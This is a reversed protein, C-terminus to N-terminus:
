KCKEPHEVGSFHTNGDPNLGTPCFGQGEDCPAHCQGKEGAIEVLGSIVVHVVIRPIRISVHIASDYNSDLISGSWDNDTYILLVAKHRIKNSKDLLQQKIDPM